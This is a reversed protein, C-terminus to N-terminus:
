NMILPLYIIPPVYEDAGIDFNADQPRAQGDIDETVGADTGVDRAASDSTLHYDRGAPDVFAPDGSVNGVNGVVSGATDLVNGSYLIYNAAVSGNSGQNHIGTTHSAVITNSILVDNPSGTPGHVMGQAQNLSEDAITVHVISALGGDGIYIGAGNGGSTAVDNDALISNTFSVFSGNGSVQFGGGQSDNDPAVGSSGVLAINNLVTLNAAKLTTAPGVASLHIGGGQGRDAGNRAAINGNIVGGNYIITAGERVYMGGGQGDGPGTSSKAVNELMSVNTMTVVNTGGSSNILIAGGRANNAGDPVNPSANAINGSFTNNIITVQTNQTTPNLAIAGGDGVGGNANGAPSANPGRAMNGEWVNNVLTILTHDSDSVRLGGGSGIPGSGDNAVNYRVASDNLSLVVGGAGSVGVVYLGGGTGEGTTNATNSLILTNSLYAAGNLIAIGGGFGTLPSTSAVNGDIQLNQGYLTARDTVLIGGGFRPNAALTANGHTMRLDELRVEVPGGSSDITIPRGSGAGNIITATKGAGRLRLHRIIFLNETFTGAPVVISDCVPDNIAAQITPYTGVGPTVTCTAALALHAPGILVGVISAGVLLGSFLSILLKSSRDKKGRLGM